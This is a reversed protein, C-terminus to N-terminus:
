SKGALAAVLARVDHDVFAIYDDCGPLAGVQHAMVAIRAGTAEAVLRAHQPAFYPASLIAGTHEARMREILQELHATTPAVGPKPEFFGLVTFGFRQAFYPWLDHDAVVKTGRWPAMAACWGGLKDADGQATLVAALKGHAFLTGLKEVDYDYLKAVDKGVMAEALRERFRAFNAAFHAANGTRLEGFRDRLLAAIRLGAVPDCAFHPNGGAHVDGNARDVSGTPVGLKDVVSSADIRGPGGTLVAENRANDVLLPLWGVELELGVEVLVDAQNLNRIMSPRAEIFHPDAPGAVLVTVTVDDGGVERALAGLDPTTATVRLPAPAQAVLAAAAFLVSCLANMTSMM